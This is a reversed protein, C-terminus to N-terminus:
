LYQFCYQYKNNMSFWVMGGEIEIVEEVNEKKKM